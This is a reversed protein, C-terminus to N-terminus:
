FKYNKCTKIIKVYKDITLQRIRSLQFKYHITNSFKKLKLDIAKEVISSEKANIELTGVEMTSTGFDLSVKIKSVSM